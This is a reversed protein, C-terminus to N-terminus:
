LYGLSLSHDLNNEGHFSLPSIIFLHISIDRYGIIYCFFINSILGYVCLYLLVCNRNIPSFTSLSYFYQTFSESFHHCSIELFIHSLYECEFYSTNNFHPELPSESYIQCSILAFIYYLFACLYGIIYCFHILSEVMFVFICYYM